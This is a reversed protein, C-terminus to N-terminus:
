ENNADEAVCQDFFEQSMYVDDQNNLEHIFVYGKSALFDRTNQKFEEGMRYGDHEYTIVSFTYDDYPLRQLAEFTAEPPELDFSLYDIVPPLKHETFLKLFDVELADAVVMPSDPREDKWNAKEAEDIDVSLGTWYYQKELLFTNNILTPRSCGIDVFTGCRKNKTLELVVQDQGIQSYSNM